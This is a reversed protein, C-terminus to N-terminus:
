FVREREILHAVAVTGVLGLVALGMSIEVYFWTETLVAYLAVTLALLVAILDFALLRDLLQPGTALRYFCPLMCASIVLLCITVLVSM